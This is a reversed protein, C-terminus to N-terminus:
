NNEFSLNYMMTLVKEVIERFDNIDPDGVSPTAREHVLKCRQNYYYNIKQWLYENLSIYKKIEKIVLHRKSFIELINKDSYHHKSDNVLYEKFAIELTSDIVILAIRNKQELQQNIILDAAIIGEYLGKTWPKKKAVEKNIQTIRQPYRPRYVPLPPLYSKTAEPFNTIVVDKIVGSKYKFVKEPWEGMWNRSLSAYDKVVRVLWDHLASFLYHKTNIDSKSSNWPMDRADGSLFVLVRTLSVKPHPLGALGKTFGVDYSKLGRSILRNNCYFYVGYEGAAPSSETSLGAIVEVKAFRDEQTKIIGHYRTPPYEPPYAWNEFLIPILKKGNLLISVSNNKLFKAYVACLHNRLQEVVDDSLRHRLKLLEVVTNGPSIEDVKYVPLNWNDEETIWTEDFDVQFTQETSYRTKIRIDQALAVVARKTGVGFIGITEDSPRTGTQGPGVIFHLESKAIGGANDEVTIRQQSIDLNINITIQNKKGSRAWVDLGNDILECISLKLDYDAIISHFLRKSPRADVKDVQTKM